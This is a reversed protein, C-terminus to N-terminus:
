TRVSFRSKSSATRWSPAPRLSSTRWGAVASGAEFVRFSATRATITVVSPSPSGATGANSEFRRYTRAFATGEDLVKVVGRTERAAELLRPLEAINHTGFVVDVHPLRRILDKGDRQGICGGVAILVDRGATKLAKASAVQGYLRDDATERVCCTNFVVVAACEPCGVPSYGNAELLGAIRESDHKNMQCGFTKIHYSLV